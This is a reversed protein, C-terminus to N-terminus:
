YWTIVGSERGKRLASRFVFLAVLLYALSLAFAVLILTAPEGASIGLFARLGSLAYTSPLAMSIYQAAEPLISVPYYVGSFIMIVGSSIWILSMFNHGRTIITYNILLGISLAFIFISAMSLALYIGGTFISFGLLFIGLVGVLVLAIFSSFLGFIGNGAIFDRMRSPSVMSHKFCNNWMDVTIGYTIARQSIGYFNWSIAGVLVYIVMDLPAGISTFYIALFGISLIGVFPYVFIWSLESPNRIMVLYQKYVHALM